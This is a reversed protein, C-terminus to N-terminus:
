RATNAPQFCPNSVPLFGPSRAAGARSLWKIREPYHTSRQGPANGVGSCFMTKPERDQSPDSSLPYSFHVSYLTFSFSNNRRIRLMCCVMMAEQRDYYGDLGAAAATQWHDKRRSSPAYTNKAVVAQGTNVQSTEEHFGPPCIVQRPRLCLPIYSKFKSKFKFKSLSLLCLVSGVSVRDSSRTLHPGANGPRTKGRRHLLCFLRGERRMM